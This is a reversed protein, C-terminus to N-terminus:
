IIVSSRSSSVEWGLAPRIFFVLKFKLKVIRQPAEFFKIFVQLAKKFGKSPGCLLTLIFNLNIKITASNSIKATEIYLLVSKQYDDIKQENYHRIFLHVLPLILCLGQKIMFICCQLLNANSQWNILCCMIFAYDILQTGEFHLNWVLLYLLVCLFRLLQSFELYFSLFHRCTYIM